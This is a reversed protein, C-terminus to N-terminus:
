FHKNSRITGLAMEFMTTLFLIHYVYSDIHEGGSAVEIHSHQQQTYCLPLRIIIYNSAVHNVHSTYNFTLLPTNAGLIKAMFDFYAEGTCQLVLVSDSAKM